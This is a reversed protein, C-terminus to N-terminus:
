CKSPNCLGLMTRIARKGEASEAWTEGFHLAIQLAAMAALLAALKWVTPWIRSM